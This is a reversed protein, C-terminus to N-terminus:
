FCPGAMPRRLIVKKLKVAKRPVLCSSQRIMVWCRHLESVLSLVMQDRFNRMMVSSGVPNYVIESAQKDPVQQAASHGTKELVTQVTTLLKGLSLPKEIFDHAGLRTAEVATEVNGHGSIMVVPSTLGAETFEKLLSIGDMDPMWIDLLILDPRRENVSQRAASADQAVAVAYGEDDLIDKVLDRIDPEDDVVLIYPKV